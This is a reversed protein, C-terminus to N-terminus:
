MIEKDYSDFIRILEHYNKQPHSITIKLPLSRYRMTSYDFSFGEAELRNKLAYLKRLVSGGASSNRSPIKEFEAPIFQLELKGM